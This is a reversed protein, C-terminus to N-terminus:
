VIMLEMMKELNNCLDILQKRDEWDIKNKRNLNCADCTNNKDFNIIPKKTNIKHKFEVESNPKQNNYTCNKCILKKKYVM